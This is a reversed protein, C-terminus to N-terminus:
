YIRLIDSDFTLFFNDSSVHDKLGGANSNSVTLQLSLVTHIEAPPFYHFMIDGPESLNEEEMFHYNQLLYGVQITVYDVSFLLYIFNLRYRVELYDYKNEERVVHIHSRFIWVSQLSQEGPVM